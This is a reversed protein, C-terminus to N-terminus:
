LSSYTASCEDGEVINQSQPQNDWESTLLHTLAMWWPMTQQKWAHLLLQQQQGQAREDERLAGQMGAGSSTTAMAQFM